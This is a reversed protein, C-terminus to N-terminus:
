EAANGNGGEESGAAWTPQFVTWLLSGAVSASRGLPVCGLVLEFGHGLLRGSARPPPPTGM